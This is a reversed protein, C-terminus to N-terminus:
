QADLMKGLKAAHRGNPYKDLYQEALTRAQAKQGARSRAEIERSLADLALPGEPSLSRARAFANAAEAAHGLDDLLVRGLTFAAIPARSDGAFSRVIKQLPAVADAPHRSLRAVDAALLLDAPDDTTAGAREVFLEAYASDYQRKHALERWGPPALASAAPEVEVTQASSRAAATVQSEEPPFRGHESAGLLTEGGPWSVQVRGHEVSVETQSALRRLTFATGVVRVRVDGSRVEFSRETSPVVDFHVTGGLPRLEIRKARNSDTGLNADSSVLRAKSGDALSVVRPPQARLEVAAQQSAVSARLLTTSWLALAALAACSLGAALVRMFFRRRRRELVERGLRATQEGSWLNRVKLPGAKLREEIDIM